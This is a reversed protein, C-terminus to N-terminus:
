LRRIGTRNGVSRKGGDIATLDNKRKCRKEKLLEDHLTLGFLLLMAMLCYLVILILPM